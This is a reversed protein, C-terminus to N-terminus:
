LYWLLLNSCPGRVSYLNILFSVTILHHHQSPDVFFNQIALPFEVVVASFHHRRSEDMQSGAVPLARNGTTSLKFPPVVLSLTQRGPLDAVHVVSGLYGLASGPQVKDTLIAIKYIIREPIRLWHL